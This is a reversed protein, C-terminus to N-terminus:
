QYLIPLWTSKFTFLFFAYRHWFGYKSQNWFFAASTCAWYSM